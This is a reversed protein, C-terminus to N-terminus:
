LRSMLLNSFQLNLINRLEDNQILELFEQVFSKVLMMKAEKKAIGRSQLYFLEDANIKAFTAGHSAKVDDALIQLNPKSFNAAKDSLVLNQNLQYARTRQAVPDVYIKGEFSTRSQDFSLNKVQQFSTTEEALHEVTAYFHSQQSGETLNLAYLKVDAFQEKLAAHIDVRCFNSSCNILQYTFSSSEKQQVFLHNMGMFGHNVLEILGANALKEVQFHMVLNTPYFPEVAQHELIFQVHSEAGIHFVIRNSYNRVANHTVVNVIKVPQEIIQGKEVRIFIGDSDLSYNLYVFPNKTNELTDFGIKNLYAEFSKSEKLFEVKLKTNSLDKQYVGDILVIQNEATQIVPQKQDHATTSFAEYFKKFQVYEFGEKKSSPFGTKDLLSSAQQQLGKQGRNVRPSQMLRNLAGLLPDAVENM